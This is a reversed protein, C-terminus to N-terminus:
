FGDRKSISSKLDLLDTIGSINIDHGKEKMKKVANAILCVDGQLEQAADMIEGSTNLTEISQTYPNYRVEFPRIIKSVLERLEQKADEITNYFFYCAVLKQLDVESAGLSALGIEQSFQAFSADALLLMHGLIEHCCDPEPTYFPDSGHRIYQTCHFVRFALAALFDRPSLYGAVPRIQFGTKKKLYSNIDELQPINDERYGCYKVLEKWNENYEESAHEEHLKTLENFITKWTNKEEETYKICPIRMGHRHFIAVESFCEEGKEIYQMELALIIWTAEELDINVENLTELINRIESWDKSSSSEIEVYFQFANDVVRTEMHVVKKNRIQLLHLVKSIEQGVNKLRIIIISKFVNKPTIYHYLGCKHHNFNEESDSKDLSKVMWKEGKKHLWFAILQKGTANM